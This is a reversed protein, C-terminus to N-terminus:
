KPMLFSVQENPTYLTSVDKTNTLRELLARTETGCLDVITIVEEMNKVSFFRKQPILYILVTKNQKILNLVNNLTGRSKGNWIMFGYDAENAMAMDKMAYFAFGTRKGADVSAVSWNGRNNRAKGNSAYVIVNPYNREHAFQQVLGDVGNADGVLITMGKNMISMIRNQVPPDLTTVARPGAIFIKM